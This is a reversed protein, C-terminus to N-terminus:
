QGDGANYILPWPQQGDQPMHLAGMSAVNAAAMDMGHQKDGQMAMLANASNMYEQAGLNSSMTDTFHRWAAPGSQQMSTAHAPTHFGNQGQPPQFAAMFNAPAQHPTLQSGHHSRQAPQPHSVQPHPIVNHTSLQANVNPKMDEASSYSPEFSGMYPQMAGPQTEQYYHSASLYPAPTQSHTAARESMAYAQQADHPGDSNPNSKTYATPFGNTDPFIQHQQSPDLASTPSGAALGASATKAAIHKSIGALSTDIIHKLANRLSLGTGTCPNTDKNLSPFLTYMGLMSGVAVMIGLWEDMEQRLQQLDASTMQDQRQTCAFLTTFIAALYDTAFYWTTDLSKLAHLRSAASLIRKSADLCVDLNNSMVHPSTSRCLSPHHLLLRIEHEQTAIYLAPCRDDGVTQSGGSLEPPLQASFDELEKELKRIGGEYPENSTRISYVTAYLQMMIKILKFGPIAARFSCKAWKSTNAENPLNDPLPEPMEIDFDELRLPMPRGLKGSINVHLLLLSWFIRKRMELTNGDREGSESQWASASRHLGLEIALGFVTNTFMWAAGLRPQSRLQMCILALAQMDQLQHGAILDPIFSLSYQYHNMATVRSQEDGNRLATQFHMIMLMMHVLVTEATNPQYHGHYMRSLLKMFDPRHLIPVFFQVSKFYWEGFHRCTEYDPLQPPYVNDPKKFAHFLFMQYSLPDSAPDKEPPIFEALDIKMGFLALQTGEVPSLWDNGSSVGLYNDGICGPRFDPLLSGQSGHREGQSSGPVVGASSLDGWSGQQRENQSWYPQLPAFSQSMGPPPKPDVGNEKLQAQLEVMYM